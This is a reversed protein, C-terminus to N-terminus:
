VHNKTHKRIVIALYFEYLVVGDYKYIFIIENNGYLSLIIVQKSTKFIM